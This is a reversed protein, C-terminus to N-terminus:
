GAGAADPSTARANLAEASEVFHSACEAHEGFGSGPVMRAVEESVWGLRTRFWYVPEDGTTVSVWCLGTQPPTSPRWDIAGTPRARDSPLTRAKTTPVTVEILPFPPYDVHGKRASFDYVQIEGTGERGFRISGHYRIVRGRTYNLSDDSDPGGDYTRYRVEFTDFGHPELAGLREAWLVGRWEDVFEDKPVEDQRADDLLYWAGEPGAGAAKGLWEDFAVTAEDLDVAAWRGECFRDAQAIARAFGNDWPCVVPEIVDTTTWLTAYGAVAAAVAAVGKWVARIHRLMARIHGLRGPANGGAEGVM